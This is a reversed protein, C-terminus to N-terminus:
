EGGKAGEAPVPEDPLLAALRAVPCEDRHIGHMGHCVRCEQPFTRYHGQVPGDTLDGVLAWAAAQLERLSAEADTIRRAAEVAISEAVHDGVCVGDAETADPFNVKDDCYRPYSLAAGLTQQIEQQQRSLADKLSASADVLHALANVAAPILEADEHSYSAGSMQITKMNGHEAIWAVAGGNASVIEDDERAWPRPAAKALLARLAAKRVKADDSAM